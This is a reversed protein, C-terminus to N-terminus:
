KAYKMMQLILDPDPCNNLFEEKESLSCVGPYDGKRGIAMPVDMDEIVQFHLHPPWQGNEMPIGFEGIVDGKRVNEGERFNKISNLSLHGYLTHFAVGEINHSIVLTAGYDGFRNNFAFSHVIGDWPSMVATYPKGWIDIGLHLRRPEASPSGSDFVRSRSYLERYENYGGIGFKVSASLLKGNIYHAFQHTDNVLQESIEKNNKTFDMLLLQDKEPRFSVVPHFEAQHNQLIDTISRKM